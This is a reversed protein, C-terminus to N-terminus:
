DRQSSPASPKGPSAGKLISADVLEKLGITGLLKKNSDIVVATKVDEGILRSAAEELTDGEACFVQRPSILDKVRKSYLFPEVQAM